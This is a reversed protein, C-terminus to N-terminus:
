CKIVKKKAYGFLKKQKRAFVSESELSSNEESSVTETHPVKLKFIISPLYKLKIKKTSNIAKMKPIKDPFTIKKALLFEKNTVGFCNLQSAKLIENKPLAFRSLFLTSLSTFKIDWFFIDM